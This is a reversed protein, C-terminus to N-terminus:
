RTGGALPSIGKLYFTNTRTNYRLENYTLVKFHNEYLYKMLQDFFAPNISYPKNTSLDVNHFIILPIANIKGGQNYSNQM